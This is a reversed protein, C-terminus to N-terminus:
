ILNSSICTIDSVYALDPGAATFQRNLVNEFLPKKHKSNTTVKYKKRYRVFVGAEKMLQKTKKLGIPYGLGNLAKRMRRGGYTYQSAEAVKKIWELMEQCEPDEPRNKQRRQYSYYSNRNIGMLRCMIDVPWTKKHQAIFSYKM